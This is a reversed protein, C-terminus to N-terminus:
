QRHHVAVPQTEVLSGGAATDLPHVEDKVRAAVDDQQRVDARHLEKPKGRPVVQANVADAGENELAHM